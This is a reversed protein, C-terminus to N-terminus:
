SAQIQAKRRTTILVERQETVLRYRLLGSLAEEHAGLLGEHCGDNRDTWTEELHEIELFEARRTPDPADVDDTLLLVLRSSAPEHVISRIWHAKRGVLALEFDQNRPQTRRSQPTSPNDQPRPKLMGDKRLAFAYRTIVSLLLVEGIALLINPSSYSFHRGEFLESYLRWFIPGAVTVIILVVCLQPAFRHRRILSIGAAFRAIPHLFGVAVAWFLTAGLGENWLDRAVWGLTWLYGAGTIFCYLAALWLPLLSRKSPASKGEELRAVDTAPPAYPNRASSM